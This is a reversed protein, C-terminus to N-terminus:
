SKLHNPVPHGDGTRLEDLCARQDRRLPQYGRIGQGFLLGKVRNIHRTREGVLVKRERGFRRRDEEERSPSRVMSCVWAEGRKFALLTRVLM